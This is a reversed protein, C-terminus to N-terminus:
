DILRWFLTQGVKSLSMKLNSAYSVSIGNETRFCGKYFVRQHCFYRQSINGIMENAYVKYTIGFGGGGLVEVVYYKRSKSQLLTGIPLASKLLLEKDKDLQQKTIAM